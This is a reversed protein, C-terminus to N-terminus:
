INIQNQEINKIYVLVFHLSWDCKDFFEAKTKKVNQSLIKMKYDVIIVAGKDNLEEDLSIKLKKSYQKRIYRQLEQLQRLLQKKLNNNIIHVSIMVEIDSFIMYRCDNCISYLSSFNERYVYQGEELCTMFSTHHINNPYEKM